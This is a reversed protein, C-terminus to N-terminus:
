SGAAEKGRLQAAQQRARRANEMDGANEAAAAAAELLKLRMAPPVEIEDNL